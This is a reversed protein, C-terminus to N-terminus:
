VRFFLEWSRPFIHQNNNENDYMMNMNRHSLARKGWFPFIEQTHPFVDFVVAGEVPLYSSIHAKTVNVPLDPWGSSTKRILPLRTVTQLAPTLTDSGLYTIPM